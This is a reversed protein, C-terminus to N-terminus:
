DKPLFADEPTQSSDDLQLSVNENSYSEEYNARHNESKNNLVELPIVSIIQYYQLFHSQCSYKSKFERYSMLQGANDLRIKSLCPARKM